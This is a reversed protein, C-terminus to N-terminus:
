CIETLVSHMIKLMNRDLPLAIIKNILLGSKRLSVGFYTWSPSAKKRMRLEFIGELSFYAFCFGRVNIGTKTNFM